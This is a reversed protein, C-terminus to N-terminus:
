LKQKKLIQAGHKLLKHVQGHIGQMAEAATRKQQMVSDEMMLQLKAEQLEMSEKRQHEEVLKVEEERELLRVSMNRAAIIQDVM